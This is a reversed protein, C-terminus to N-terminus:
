KAELVNLAKEALLPVQLTAESDQLARLMPNIVAAVNEDRLDHLIHHAGERLSISEPNKIVERLLPALAPRGIAILGEAALWRVDFVKDTLANILAGTASADGIQSLVKAAEWRLLGEKDQLAPTLTPVAAKGIYSLLRRAMLRNFGDPCILDSVLSRIIRSNALDRWDSKGEILIQGASFRVQLSPNALAEVLYAAAAEGFSMLKAVARQRQDADKNELAKILEQIQDSTKEDPKNSMML